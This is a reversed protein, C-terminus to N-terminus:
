EIIFRGSLDDFLRVRHRRLLAAVEDTMARPDDVYLIDEGWLERIIQRMVEDPADELPGDYLRKLARGVRDDEDIMDALLLHRDDADYGALRLEAGPMVAQLERVLPEVPPDPNDVSNKIIFM